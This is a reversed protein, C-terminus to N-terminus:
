NLIENIKERIEPLEMVGRKHHVIEGASNVFITEPMAFGQISRYFSDTPDLLFVLDETVDLEDSYFKATGLSEKRNIAIIAVQDGFEKQALAFDPLEDKCFPCWAAWSNIVTPTGSFDSYRVTNGEYDELNFAFSVGGEELQNAQDSGSRKDFVFGGILVIGIIALFIPLTINLKKM